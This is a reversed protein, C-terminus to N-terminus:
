PGPVVFYEETYIHIRVECFEDADAGAAVGIDSAFSAEMTEVSDWWLEATGDDLPEAGLSEPQYVNAINIRYGRLGPLKGSIKTHEELWCCDFAERSLGPKRKSRCLLQDHHIRWSALILVSARTYRAIFSYPSPLM